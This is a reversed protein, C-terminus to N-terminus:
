KRCAKGSSDTPIQSSANDDMFIFNEGANEAFPVVFTEIVEDRYGVGTM